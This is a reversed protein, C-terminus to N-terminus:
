QIQLICSSTPRISILVNCVHFGGACLSNCYLSCFIIQSSNSDISCLSQQLLYHSFHQLLKWLVWLVIAIRMAKLMEMWQWWNELFSWSSRNDQKWCTVSVGRCNVIRNYDNSLRLKETSLTPLFLLTTFTTCFIYYLILYNSKTTTLAQLVFKGLLLELSIEPSDGRTIWLPIWPPSEITMM